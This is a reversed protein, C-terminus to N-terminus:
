LIGALHAAWLPGSTLAAALITSIHLTCVHRAHKALVEPLPGEAAKVLTATEAGRYTASKPATLWVTIAGEKARTGPPSPMPALGPLHIFGAADVTAEEPLGLRLFARRKREAIVLAAVALTAGIVGVLTWSAKAAIHGALDRPSITRPGPASLKVPFEQHDARIIVLDGLRTAQARPCEGVEPISAVYLRGSPVGDVLVECPYNVLSGDLRAQFQLRHGDLELPLQGVEQQSGWYRAATPRQSAALARASVYLALGVSLWAGYRVFPQFVNRGKTVGIAVLAIALMILSMFALSQQRMLRGTGCFGVPGLPETIEFNALAFAIPGFVVLALTYRLETGLSSLSLVFAAAILGLVALTGPDSSQSTSVAFVVGLAVTALVPVGRVRM